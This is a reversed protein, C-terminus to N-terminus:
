PPRLRARVADLGRATDAAVAPNSTVAILDTEDGVPVGAGLGAFRPQYNEGEWDVARCDVQQAQRGAIGDVNRPIPRQQKPKTRVRGQKVPRWSQPDRARAQGMPDQLLPEDDTTGRHVQYCEM